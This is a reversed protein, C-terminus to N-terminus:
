CGDCLRLVFSGGDCDSHAVNCGMKNGHKFEWHDCDVMRNDVHHWLVKGGHFEEPGYAWRQSGTYSRPATRLVSHNSCWPHRLNAVTIYQAATDLYEGTATNRFADGELTWKQRDDGSCLTALRVTCPDEEDYGVTLAMDQAKAPAIFFAAGAPIDAIAAAQQRQITATNCGVAAVLPEELAATTIFFAESPPHTAPEVGWKPYEMVYPRDSSLTAWGNECEGKMGDVRSSFRCTPDQVERGTLTIPVWVDGWERKAHLAAAKLEYVTPLRAGKKAAMDRYGYWTMSDAQVEARTRSVVFEM